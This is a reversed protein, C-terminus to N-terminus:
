CIVRHKELKYPLPVPDEDCKVFFLSSPEQLSFEDILESNALKDKSGALYAIRAIKKYFCIPLHPGYAFTM